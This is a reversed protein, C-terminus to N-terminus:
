PLGQVLRELARTHLFCCTFFEEKRSLHARARIPRNQDQDVLAIMVPPSSTWGLRTTSEWPFLTSVTESTLFSSV